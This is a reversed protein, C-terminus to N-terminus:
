RKVKVSNLVNPWDCRNAGHHFMIWKNVSKEKKGFVFERQLAAEVPTYNKFKELWHMAENSDFLRHMYGINRKPYFNARTLEHDAYTYKTIPSKGVKEKNRLHQYMIM